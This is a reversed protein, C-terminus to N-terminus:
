VKPKAPPNPTTPPTARKRIWANYRIILIILLIIAVILVIGYVIIVHWPLVWFTTTATNTVKDGSGATLSLTATFKGIAYNARENSYSTWFRAWANGTVPEVDGVQWIEKDYRRSTKPLTAGKETNFDIAAVQKGFSNQIAITGKPKLHITGTNQYQTTFSIPLHSFRSLGGTVGFSQVTASETIEGGEVRVLLLTAVKADIVIQGDQPANPNKFTFLIAGYHGGPEADAPVNVKVSLNKRALPELSLTGGDVVIWKSIDTATAAEAFVPEGPAEGSTFTTTETTVQITQSADENYLKVTIEAQQGPYVGFEISPPSITLAHAGRIGFFLLAGFAACATISWRLIRQVHTNM